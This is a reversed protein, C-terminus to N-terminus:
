RRTKSTCSGGDFRGCCRSHVGCRLLLHYVHRLGARSHLVVLRGWRLVVLLGWRLGRVRLVGLLGRHVGRASLVRLLRGNLGAGFSLYLPHRTTV